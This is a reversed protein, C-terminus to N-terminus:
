EFYFPHNDVAFSIGWQLWWVWVQLVANLYCSNGTNALGVVGPAKPLGRVHRRGGSGVGLGVSDGAGLHKQQCNPTQSTATGAADRVKALGAGKQDGGAM